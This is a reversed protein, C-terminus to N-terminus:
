NLNFKEILKQIEQEKAIIRITVNHTDTQKYDDVVFLDYVNAISKIENVKEAIYDKNQLTFTLDLNKLPASDVENFQTQKSSHFELVEAYFANTTDFKPHVKGIWGIMKDGLMIKASVNPHIYQNDKLPEFTLNAIGLFDIIDQRFDFFSKTTTAFGYVLVNNNVMGKEFFNIQQIKRKQNYEVAEMLSTVISNRVVEREKSVYTMLKQNNAFNFPNLFNKEESVLTFTRAEAYGKKALLEKNVNRKAILVPVNIYPVAEFQKYSYFRFIEEIIDEFITVDYRYNPVLVYKDFFEFGLKTLKNKANNFVHLDTSNAYTKLKNEEWNIKLKSPVQIENVINSVELNQCYGKIFRMTLAAVEPSITRAGQSAANSMLKIEKAGARVLKSDFVGVEFVYKTTESDAKTNELGMVSPLSIVKQDDKIVQTNEIQVEKEGLLTVKGTYLMAELNNSIKNRDYVHAPSGITLLALNTLNVAWSFKSSIGHKALFLKEYLSTNQEGHVELFSLEKAIGLNLKLDSKFTNEVAPIDFKFETDFYAALEKALFYYSNADNRNATVSIEILTDDLGLKQIPDEELTAFNEPLVLIENKDTILEYDYGIEELAGFMGQSIEGKLTVEGFVVDGKSSGVPFIITLDGAKLIRNNTQIQFNGNKTQVQVVDLRDSNPNAAVSLVKAFLLGQVDSFPKIEEVELGIENLAHEVEHASLKHKPLFENLKNLSLIM